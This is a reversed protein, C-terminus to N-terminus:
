INIFLNIFFNIFRSAFDQLRLTKQLSFTQELFVSSITKLILTFIYKNLLSLGRGSLKDSLMKFCM